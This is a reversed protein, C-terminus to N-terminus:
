KQKKSFKSTIPDFIIQKKALLIILGPVDSCGAKPLMKM